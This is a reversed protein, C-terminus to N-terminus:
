KLCDKTEHAASGFIIKPAKYEKWWCGIPVDTQFDAHTILSWQGNTKKFLAFIGNDDIM